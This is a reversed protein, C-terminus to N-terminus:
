RKGQNSLSISENSREINEIEQMVKKFHLLQLLGIEFSLKLIQIVDIKNVHGKEIERLPNKFRGILFEYAVFKSLPNFSDTERVFVKLPDKVERIPPITLSRSEM